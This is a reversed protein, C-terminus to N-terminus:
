DFTFHKQRFLRLCAEVVARDYLRGCNQEIEALAKESGYAPRYPRHSSMAEVVDAVALIRAALCIEEDRLGQPYGSGDLREHHQLVMEAIPWPFEIPKLIDFSAQVHSQVLAYEIPSLNGPKSLIEAPVYIKGIDHLVGAVRISEIEEEPLSMEQAIASALLSVRTQHGAAYPDRMEALSVLAQVTQDFARRLKLLSQELLQQSQKRETIDIVTGQIIAPAGPEGVILNANELIWIKRGDRRRILVEANSVSGEELLHAVFQKRDNENEYFQDAPEALVGERNEYGLIQAFADNCDLIRGEPTTRFVGALNREILIRYRRESLRQAEEAQKKETIDLAYIRLRTGDEVQYMAQQFLAQGVQVERIYSDQQQQEMYAFVAPVGMLFPHQFGRDELGILLRGAAPNAYHIIGQQDVEIVPNPDLESFSGLRQKEAEERKRETIDTQISLQHPEGHVLLLVGHVESIFPTGDKRRNRIEGQWQGAELLQQHIEEAFETSEGEPLDNLIAVPQGLLEGALYGFTRDLASNTYVIRNETDTVMVGESLAGLMRAQMQVSEETQRRQTIDHVITVVWIVQKDILIPIKRTETWLQRDEWQIVDETQIMQGTEFVQQYQQRAEDGLFPFLVNLNQGVAEARNAGFKAIWELCVPNALVLRLDRDVVHLVDRMSDILSHYLAESSKLAEIATKRETIDHSIGLIGATEGHISRIPVQKLLFTYLQGRKVEEIEKEIQGEALTKQDNALHTAAEVPPFLESDTKGLWQEASFGEWELFARNVALYRGSSDKIWMPDPSAELYQHWQANAVKQAEEATKRETIEQLFGLWSQPRSHEDRMLIAQDRFWVPHGDKHILRYELSFPDGTANTRAHEALALQRDEPHLLKVWLNPDEIWEQPSYGLLPDVQPSMYLTSSVEDVTDIYTIAPIQEVLLRFKEEAQRLEKEVRKRETRETIDSVVLMGAAKGGFSVPLSTVEIDLITGDLRIAKEEISTSSKREKPGRKVEPDVSPQHDFPIFSFLSHGILNRANQAGLLAIAASNLFVITGQQHIIIAEPLTDVLQRYREESERISALLTKWETINTLVGEIRVITGAADRIPVATDAVWIVDGNKAIIRYESQSKEGKELHDLNNRALSQDGPHVISLWFGPDSFSSLPYGTLALLAPSRYSLQPTKENPNWAYVFLDLNDLVEPSLHTIEQPQM